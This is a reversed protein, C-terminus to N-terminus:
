SQSVKNSYVLRRFIRGIRLINQIRWIDILYRRINSSKRRRGGIEASWPPSPTIDKDTVSDNLNINYRNTNNTYGRSYKDNSILLSSKPDSEKYTSCDNISINNIMDMTSINMNLTIGNMNINNDLTQNLRSM